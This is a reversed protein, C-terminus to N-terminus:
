KKIKYYEMLPIMHNKDKETQSIGSLIIGKLDIWTTVSSLIVDKKAASYCEMTNHVEDEKNM